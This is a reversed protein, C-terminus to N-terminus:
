RSRHALYWLVVSRLEVSMSQSLESIYAISDMLVDTVAIADM